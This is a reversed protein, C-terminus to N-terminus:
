QSSSGRVPRSNLRLKAAQAERQLDSAAGMGPTVANNQIYNEISKLEVKFRRSVRIAHLEGRQVLRRITDPTTALRNAADRTDIFSM